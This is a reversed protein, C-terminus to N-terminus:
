HRVGQQYEIFTMRQHSRRIYHRDALESIRRRGKNVDQREAVPPIPRGLMSGKLNKQDSSKGEMSIGSDKPFFTDKVDGCAKPQSAAVVRLWRVPESRTFRRSLATDTKITDHHGSEPLHPAMTGRAALRNITWETHVSGRKQHMLTTTSSSSENFKGVFHMRETGAAVQGERREGM